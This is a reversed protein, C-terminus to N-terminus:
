QMHFAVVHNATRQTDIVSKEDAVENIGLSGHLFTIEESEFSEPESKLVVM